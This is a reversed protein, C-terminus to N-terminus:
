YPLDNSYSTENYSERAYQGGDHEGDCEESCVHVPKMPAPTKKPKPGVTALTVGNGRWVIDDVSERTKQGNKKTVLVIDGCTVDGEVRLGWNGDRLKTWTAKNTKDM